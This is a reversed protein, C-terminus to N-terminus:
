QLADHFTGARVLEEVGGSGVGGSGCEGVGVSKWEEVGVSRWEEVVMYM